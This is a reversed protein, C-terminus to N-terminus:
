KEIKLHPSSLFLYSIQKSNCQLSDVLNSPCQLLTLNKNLCFIVQTLVNNSDCTVVITTGTINKITNALLDVDYYSGPIINHSFLMDYVDFKERLALSVNFFKEETSLSKIFRTNWGHKLYEYEQFNTANVFDTWYITLNFEIPILKSANFTADSCEKPYSGNYNQPWIGHITFYDNTFNYTSRLRSFTSNINYLWSSPWVQVFLLYDFNQCSPITNIILDSVPNSNLIHCNMGYMFQFLALLLIINM